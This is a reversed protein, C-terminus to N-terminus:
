AILCGSCRCSSEKSRVPMDTYTEIPEKKALDGPEKLLKKALEDTAGHTLAKVVHAPKPFGCICMDFTTAKLDRRFKSCASDASETQRADANIKNRKGLKGRLEESARSFTVHAAKPAGCKRCINFTSAAVDLEFQCKGPAENEKARPAETM